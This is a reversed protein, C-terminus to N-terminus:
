LPAGHVLTHTRSSSEGKKPTFMIAVNPDAPGSATLARNQNHPWSTPATDKFCSTCLALQTYQLVSMERRSSCQSNSHRNFHVTNQVQGSNVAQLMWERRQAAKTRYCESMEKFLLNLETIPAHSDSNWSSASLLKLIQQSIYVYSKLNESCFHGFM